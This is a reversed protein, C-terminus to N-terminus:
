SCGESGPANRECVVGELFDFQANYWLVLNELGQIGHGQDEFEVYTVPRDLTRAAEYFQRSETVEVRSDNSGHTLLLPANLRNAHTLPSRDALKDAEMKPDGAELIIWDPINTAQYFTLISSFGAHSIGFGFDYSESRDNTEPPFTLARMTAFGGHSGGTVGIQAPRLGLKRELYLAGYFLDIIEDGGLDRDNLAMFEKGFGSSGRVAPSLWAIGAECYIQQRTSFSNSGGYFATIAALRQGPDELPRKPTLLFAHLMRPEGTAPDIDFTPYEIREVECQEIREALAEPLRIKPELQWVARGGDLEIWMEDALFPSAVSTMSVIFHNKEDFGIVGVNADFTRRGLETGHEPDIVVMVNEHPRDLVELVLPRDDIEIPLYWAQEELATVQRSTRSAIDYVYLNAYGTEDSVYYFRDNDLWPEDYSGFAFREVGGPLLIEIEPEARALDIYGLTARKRHGDENLRLVVGSGDPRFNVSSWVMRYRSGQECLVERSAGSHPDLLTLCNRYPETEGYRAIYGITRGDKSFDRGYIYPVDTLKELAGTELSLRYLNIVEDNREDALLIHDGAISDFDTGWYNRTSWDIDHVRRGAEPDIMGSGHGVELPQVMLFDGTPTQHFYTLTGAEFDADWGGYPFGQVYPELDITRALFTVTYKSEEGAIAGREQAVSATNGPGLSIGALLAIIRPLRNM